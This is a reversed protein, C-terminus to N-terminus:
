RVSLGYTGPSLETRRLGLFMAACVLSQWVIWGAAYPLIMWAAACKDWNCVGFARSFIYGGILGALISFGWYAPTVALPAIFRVATAVLIAGSVGAVM